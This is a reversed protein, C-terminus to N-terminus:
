SQDRRKENWRVTVLDRHKGAGERLGECDNVLVSVTDDALIVKPVDQGRQTLRIGM